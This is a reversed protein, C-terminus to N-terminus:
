YNKANNKKIQVLDTFLIYVRLNQENKGINGIVNYTIGKLFENQYRVCFAYYIYHLTDACIRTM